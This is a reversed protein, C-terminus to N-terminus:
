VNCQHITFYDKEKKPYSSNNIYSINLTSIDSMQLKCTKYSRIMSTELFTNYIHMDKEIYRNLKYRNLFTEVKNETGVSANTMMFM